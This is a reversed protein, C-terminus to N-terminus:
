QLFNSDIRQSYELIIENEKGFARITATGPINESVSRIMPSRTVGELRFLDRNACEYFKLLKISIIFFIPIFIASYAEFYCVLIMSTFFKGFQTCINFFTYISFLDSEFLEKSLRGLLRGRPNLEHFLNIPALVLAKIMDYHLKIHFNTMCYSFYFLRACIFVTKLLSLGVLMLIFRSKYSDDFLEFNSILVTTNYDSAM